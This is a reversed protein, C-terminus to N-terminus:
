ARVAIEKEAEARFRLKGDGFAFPIEKGDVTVSRVSKLYPLELEGLALTGDLVPDVDAKVAFDVYIENLAAAGVSLCCLAAAVGPLVMKVVREGM